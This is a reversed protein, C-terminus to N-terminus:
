GRILGGMSGLQPKLSELAEEVPSKDVGHSTVDGRKPPRIGREGRIWAAQHKPQTRTPEQSMTM